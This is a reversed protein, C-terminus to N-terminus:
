ENKVGGSIKERIKAEIEKAIEPNQKLFMRANEKGQGLKTNEYTFWTGSKSILNFNVGIDVLSSEYSIGESYLIDFQAEKFPPAVKNKVVKARVRNGIIEDGKTLSSIRRLDIRVSSYFKLARGGPTTEPNGFMIGIKM